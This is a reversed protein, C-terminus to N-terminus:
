AISSVTPRLKRRLTHGLAIALAGFSMVIGTIPVEPVPTTQLSMQNDHIGNGTWEGFFIQPGIFSGTASGNSNQGPTGTSYNWVVSSATTASASTGLVIAYTSGSSLDYGWGSGPTVGVLTTSVPANVSGLDALQTTLSSDFLYVEASGSSSADLELSLGSIAGSGSGTSFVEAVAFGSGLSTGYGTNDVIVDARSVTTFAGLVLLVTGVKWCLLGFFLGSNKKM